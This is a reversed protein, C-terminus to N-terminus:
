DVDLWVAVDQDATIEVTLPPTWAYARHYIDGGYYSTLSKSNLKISIDYTGGQGDDFNLSTVNTFTEYGNVEVGNVILGGMPGTNYVTVTYGQVAVSGTVNVAVNGTANSLTLTGTSSDWTYTAESVTVNEPLVYGDDATFVIQLTQGSTINSPITSSTSVNSMTVSLTYSVTENDWEYTQGQYTLTGKSKGNIKATVGNITLKYAM